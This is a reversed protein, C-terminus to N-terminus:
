VELRSQIDRIRNTIARVTFKVERLQMVLVPGGPVAESKEPNCPAPDQLICSLRRELDGVSEVAGALEAQLDRMMGEVMPTRETQAPVENRRQAQMGIGMAKGPDGSYMQGNM